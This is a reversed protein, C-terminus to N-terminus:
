IQTRIETKSASISTNSATESSDNRSLTNTVVNKSNDAILDSISKGSARFQTLIFENELSTIENELQKIKDQIVTVEERKQKLMENLKNHKEKFTDVKLARNVKM